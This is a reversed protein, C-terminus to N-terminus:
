SLAPFRLTHTVPSVMSMRGSNVRSRLVSLYQSGRLILNRRVRGYGTTPAIFEMTERTVKQHERNAAVRVSSYEDLLAPSQGNCLVEIMRGTLCRVDQIGSNMGRGGFPNVLHAADGLFFIRGLSMQRMLRQEFQYSSKWVVSFDQDGVVRKVRECISAEKQCPEVGMPMQWDMRWVNQPQPVLLLTQERHSPHDFHFHHEFQQDLDANVDVILFRHPNTVGPFDLGCLTRITSRAGDAALLYEGDLKREGEEGVVTVVTKNETQTVNTVSHGWMVDILPSANIKELLFHETMNQALNVFLPLGGAECCPFETTFLLKDQFFTRRRKAVLGESLIKDACGIDRLHELSGRDLVIARSGVCALQPGREVITSPIGGYALSLAACMGVPGAGVILIKNM